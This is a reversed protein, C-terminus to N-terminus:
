GVEESGGLRESLYRFIEIYKTRDLVPPEWGMREFHILAETPILLDYTEIYKSADRRWYYTGDSAIASGGPVEFRGGIGDSTHEMWALIIPCSDLYQVVRGRLDSPFRSSPVLKEASWQEGAVPAFGGLPRIENKPSGM